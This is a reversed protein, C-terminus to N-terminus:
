RATRTRSRDRPLEFLGAKSLYSRAWNLRNSSVTQNGSPPMRAREESSIRLTKVIEDELGAISIEERRQGLMQLALLM